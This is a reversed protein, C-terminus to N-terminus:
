FRQHAPELEACTDIRWHTDVHGQCYESWGTDGCLIDARLERRSAILFNDAARRQVPVATLLDSRECSQRRRFFARPWRAAVGRVFPLRSLRKRHGPNDM